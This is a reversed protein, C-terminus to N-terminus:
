VSARSIAADPLESWATERLSIDFLRSTRRRLKFLESIKFWVKWLWCLYKDASAVCSLMVKQKRRRCRCKTNAGYAGESCNRTWGCCGHKFQGSVPQWARQSGKGAECLLLWDRYIPWCGSKAAIAGNQHYLYLCKPDLAINRFFGIIAALCVRTRTNTSSMAAYIRRM